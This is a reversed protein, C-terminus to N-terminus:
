AGGVRQLAQGGDDLAARGNEAAALRDRM